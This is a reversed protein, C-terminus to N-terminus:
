YFSHRNRGGKGGIYIQAFMASIEDILKEETPDNKWKQFLEIQKEKALSKFAQFTNVDNRLYAGGYRNDTYFSIRKELMIIEEFFGGKQLDTDYASRVDGFSLERQFYSLHYVPPTDTKVKQLLKKLVESPVYVSGPLPAHTRERLQQLPITLNMDIKRRCDFPLDVFPNVVIRQPYERQWPGSFTWLLMTDVFDDGEELQTLLRIWQEEWGSTLDYLSRVYVWAEYDPKKQSGKNFVRKLQMHIQQLHPDIRRRLEEVFKECKKFHHVPPLVEKMQLVISSLIFARKKYTPM